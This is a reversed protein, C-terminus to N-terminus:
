IGFCNQEFVCITHLHPHTIRPETCARHTILSGEHCFIEPCVEIWQIPTTVMVGSRAFCWLRLIVDEITIGFVFRRCPDNRLIHTLNFAIKAINQVFHNAQASAPSGTARVDHHYKLSTKYEHAVVVNEWHVPPVSHDGTAQSVASSEKLVLVKDPHTSNWRESVKCQSPTDQGMTVIQKGEMFPVAETTSSIIDDWICKVGAFVEDEVLDNRRLQAPDQTYKAWRRNKIAGKKRCIRLIDKIYKEDFPSTPLVSNIFENADVVPVQGLDFVVDSRADNLSSTQSFQDFSRKPRTPTETHVSHLRPNMTIGTTPLHSPCHEVKAVFLVLNIEFFLCLVVRARPWRTPFEV